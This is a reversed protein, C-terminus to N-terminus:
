KVSRLYTFVGVFAIFGLPFVLPLLWAAIMALSPYGYGLWGLLFVISVLFSVVLFGVLIGKVIDLVLTPNKRYSLLTLCAAGVLYAPFCASLMLRAIFAAPLVFLLRVLGSLRSSCELGAAIPPSCCYYVRVLASTVRNSNLVRDRFRRLVDVYFSSGSSCCATAIFCGEKPRPTRSPSPSSTPVPSSTPPSTTAPPLPPNTFIVEIEDELWSYELILKSPYSTRPIQFAIWGRMKTGPFLDGGEFESELSWTAIDYRYIYNLNDVLNFDSESLYYESDGINEVEVDVVCFVKDSEATHYSIEELYWIQYVTVRVNEDSNVYPPQFSLVYLTFSFLLILVPIVGFRYTYM